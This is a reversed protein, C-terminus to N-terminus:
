IKSFYKPTKTRGLKKNDNTNAEMMLIKKSNGIKNKQKPSHNYLPKELDFLDALPTHNYIMIFHKKFFFCEDSAYYALQSKLIEQIKAFKNEEVIKDNNLEKKNILNDTGILLKDFNIQEPIYGTLANIIHLDGIEQNSYLISKFKYSFLKLLAKTIIAPWMEESNETRPILGEGSKTCPILDDIVIKRPKGMHYLKVWYLGKPNIVPIGDKQPYIKKFITETPKNNYFSLFIFIFVHLIFM